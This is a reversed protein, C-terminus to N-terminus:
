VGFVPVHLMFRVDSSIFFSIFVLVLTSPAKYLGSACIFSEIFLLHQLLLLSKLLHMCYIDLTIVWCFICVRKLLM